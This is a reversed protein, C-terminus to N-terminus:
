QTSCAVEACVVTGKVLDVVGRICLNRSIDKVARAELALLGRDPLWRVGTDNNFFPPRLTGPQARLDPSCTLLAAEAAERTIVPSALVPSALRRDILGQVQATATADNADLETVVVVSQRFEVWDKRVRLRLTLAPTSLASLVDISPATGSAAAARAQGTRLAEGALRLLRPAQSVSPSAVQEGPAQGAVEATVDNALPTGSNTVDATAPMVATPSVAGVPTSNMAVVVCGILTQRVARNM